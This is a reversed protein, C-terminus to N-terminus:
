WPISSFQTFLAYPYSFIHVGWLAIVYYNSLSRKYLISPRLSFTILLPQKAGLFFTQNIELLFFKIYTMHVYMNSIVLKALFTFQGHLQLGHHGEAGAADQQRQLRRHYCDANLNRLNILKTIRDTKTCRTLIIPWRTRRIQRRM